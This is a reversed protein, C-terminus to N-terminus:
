DFKTSLPCAEADKEFKDKYVAQIAEDEWSEGGSRGLACMGELNRDFWACSHCLPTNWEINDPDNLMALHNRREVKQEPTERHDVVKVRAGAFKEVISPVEDETAIVKLVSMRGQHVMPPNGKFKLTVPEGGSVVLTWVTKM